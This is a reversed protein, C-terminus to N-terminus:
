FPPSFSGDRPVPSRAGWFKGSIMIDRDCAIEHGNAEEHGGGLGPVWGGLQRAVADIEDIFIICPANKKQKTLCYRKDRSAGVGVCCKWSILDRFARFRYGPKVRCVGGKGVDFTKGTGPPGVLLVGKPIRAGVKVFRGPNKLFSVIEELDEKEEDLGAVDKFTVTKGIDEMRQSGCNDAGSETYRRLQLLPEIVQALYSVGRYQDPRESEMVHLINPLGTREGYAQVRAWTTTTSGLEFPYTSRIHYAEIQGDGNVEVGDYITNGNAAKGTTLLMPTIIGSTTPTAVRDAEILHLRLSYPTLLTPEYQKVVAFVDGSVLWSSLALQQMAAFNNVGTADCARKNESWLAFEREAQAQWADAAEQTMGLAERDIRSKLQLGIGVVNTRNTRIASTAIPAAMYLM